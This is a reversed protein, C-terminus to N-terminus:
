QIQDFVHLSVFMGHFVKRKKKKSPFSSTKSFVDDNQVCAGDVMKEPHTKFVVRNEIQLSKFNM